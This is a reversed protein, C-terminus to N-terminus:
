MKEFVSHGGSHLSELETLGDDKVITSSDLFLFHAFIDLAPSTDM